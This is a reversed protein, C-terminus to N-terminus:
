LSDENFKVFEGLIYVTSVQAGTEKYTYIGQGDRANQVWFGSFTDGNPYTYKGAGHRM